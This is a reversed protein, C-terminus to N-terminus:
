GGARGPRRGRALGGGLREARPHRRARRPRRAAGAGRGRHPRARGGRRAARPGGAAPAEGTPAAALGVCRYMAGTDLFTFGLREAAARAVTSKGAGAPGDIAIVMASWSLGPGGIM